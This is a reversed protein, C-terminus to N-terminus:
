QVDDDLIEVWVVEETDGTAADHGHFGDVADGFLHSTAETQFSM